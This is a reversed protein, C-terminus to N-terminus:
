ESPKEVPTEKPKYIYLTSHDDVLDFGVRKYCKNSAPNGADAIIYVKKKQKEMEQCMHGVLHTAYGNGRHKEPTFM